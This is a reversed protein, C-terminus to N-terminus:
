KKRGKQRRLYEACIAIAKNRGLETRKRWSLPPRWADGEKGSKCTIAIAILERAMKEAAKRETPNM